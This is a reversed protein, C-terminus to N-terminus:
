MAYLYEDKYMHSHSVKCCYAHQVVGKISACALIVIENASVCANVMEERLLQWCSCRWVSSCMSEIVVLSRVVKEVHHM